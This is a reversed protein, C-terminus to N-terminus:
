FRKKLTLINQDNLRQYSYESMIKKVISIGLGGIRLTKEAANDNNVSFQNFEKAEDIIVLTFEHIDEDFSLKVDIPGGSGEYGHKIINSFLEDGVILIQNTFSEPFRHERAFAVIFDLISPINEKKAAFEEETEFM